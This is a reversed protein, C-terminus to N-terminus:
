FGRFVVFGRVLGGRIRLGWVRGVERGMRWFGFFVLGFVLVLFIGFIGSVLFM